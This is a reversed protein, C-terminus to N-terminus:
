EELKKIRNLANQYSSQKGQQKYLDAAKRYDEIAAQKNGLTMALMAGTTTLMQM